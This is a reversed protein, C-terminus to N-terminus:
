HTLSREGGIGGEGAFLSPSATVQFTSLDELLPIFQKPMSERSAPWLRRRSGGCMIVSLIQPRRRRRIPASQRLTRRYDRISRPWHTFLVSHRLRLAHPLLVAKLGPLAGKPLAPSRTPRCSRSPTIRAKMFPAAMAARATPSAAPALFLHIRETSVAPKAWFMGVPDVAGLSVGREKFAERLACAAPDQDKLPPCASWRTSLGAAVFAPVRLQRVLMAERSVPDYPLLAAATRYDEAEREIESGDSFRLRKIFFPWLMRLVRLPEAADAITTASTM